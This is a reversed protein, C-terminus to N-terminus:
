YVCETEGLHGHEIRATRCVEAYKGSKKLRRLSANFWKIVRSDKRTALAGGDGCYLVDGVPELGVPTGGFVGLDEDDVGYEPNLALFAADIQQNKVNNVLKNTDQSFIQHPGLLRAGVVKNEKLCRFNSEWGHIFGIKRGAINNPNFNGPNGTPVFFLSPARYGTIRDSLAVANALESNASVLCGDFHKALLGQGAGEYDYRDDSMHCRNYTDYVIECKKNAEKCVEKVLDPFFGKTKTNELYYLSINLLPEAQFLYVKDDRVTKMKDRLANELGNKIQNFMILTMALDERGHLGRLIPLAPTHFGHKDFYRLFMVRSMSVPVRGSMLVRLLGASENDMSSESILALKEPMDYLKDSDVMFGSVLRGLSFITFALWLKM